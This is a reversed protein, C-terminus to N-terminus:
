SDMVFRATCANLPPAGVSRRSACTPGCAPNNFDLPADTRRFVWGGMATRRTRLLLEADRFCLLPSTTNSCRMRVCRSRNPSNSLLRGFARNSNSAEVSLLHTARHRSSSPWSITTAIVWVTHGVVVVLGEFDDNTIRVQLHIM